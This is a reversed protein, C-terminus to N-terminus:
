LRTRVTESSRYELFHQRIAVCPLGKRQIIENLFDESAKSITLSTVHVGQSGAFELFSGWRRRYGARPRRAYTCVNMAYRFKREMGVELPSTMPSLSRM